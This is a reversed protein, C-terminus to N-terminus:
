GSFTSPYEQLSVLQEFPDLRSSLEDSSWVFCGFSVDSHCLQNCVDSRSDVDDHDHDNDGYTQYSGSSLNSGNISKRISFSLSSCGNSTVIFMWDISLTNTGVDTLSCINIVARFVVCADILWDITERRQRESLYEFQYAIRHSGQIVDIRRHGNEHRGIEYKIRSLWEYSKCTLENQANIMGEFLLRWRLVIAWEDDNSSLTDRLYFQQLLLCEDHIGRHTLLAQITDDCRKRIFEWLFLSMVRRWLLDRSWFKSNVDFVPTVRDTRWNGFVINSSFINSSLLARCLISIMTWNDEQTGNIRSLALADNSM